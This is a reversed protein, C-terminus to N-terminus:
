KEKIPSGSSTEGHESVRVTLSSPISSQLLEAPLELASRLVWEIWARHYARDSRTEEWEDYTARIERAVEPELVDLGQPFARLLVPMSLFPGSVDLLRLWDSHERVISPM